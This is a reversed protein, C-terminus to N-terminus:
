QGPDALDPDGASVSFRSIHARGADAYNVYFLRQIGRSPLGIRLGQEGGGSGM